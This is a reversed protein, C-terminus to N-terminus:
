ALSEGLGPPPSRAPWIDAWASVSAESQQWWGAGWHAEVDEGGVRAVWEALTEQEEDSISEAWAQFQAGCWRDRDSRAYRGGGCKRDM